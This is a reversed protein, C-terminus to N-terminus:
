IERAAATGGCKEDRATRVPRAREQGLEVRAGGDDDCGSRAAAQEGQRAVADERLLLEREYLTERVDGARDGIQHAVAIALAGVSLLQAHLRLPEAHHQLRAFVGDG